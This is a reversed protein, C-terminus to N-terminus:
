IHKIQYSILQEILQYDARKFRRISTRCAIANTPMKRISAIQPLYPSDLRVAIKWLFVYTGFAVHGRTLTKRTVLIRWSGEHVITSHSWLRADHVRPVKYIQRNVQGIKLNTHSVTHGM